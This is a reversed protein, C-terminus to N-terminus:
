VHILLINLINKQIGVKTPTVTPLAVVLTAGVSYRPRAVPPTPGAPM